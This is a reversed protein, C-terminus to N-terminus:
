FDFGDHGGEGGVAVGLYAKEADDFLEDRAHWGVADAVVSLAQRKAKQKMITKETAGIIGGEAKHKKQVDRLREKLARQRKKFEEEKAKKAALAKEKSDHMDVFHGPFAAKREKEMEAVMQRVEANVTAQKRARREEDKKKRQDEEVARARDAAIKKIKQNYANTMKPEAVNSALAREKAIREMEEIQARKDAQKKRDRAIRAARKEEYEKQRREIPLERNPLTKHTQNAEKVARLKEEWREQKLKMIEAYREPNVQQVKAAKKEKEALKRWTRQSATEKVVHGAQEHLAKHMAMRAPLQSHTQMKTARADVRQKREADERKAIDEWNETGYLKVNRAKFLLGREDEERKRLMEEREKEKEQMRERDKKAFSFERADLSKTVRDRKSREMQDLLDQKRAREEEEKMKKRRRVAEHVEMSRFPKVIESHRRAIRRQFEADTEGPRQTSKKPSTTSPKPKKPSSYSTDVELSEVEKVLVEELRRAKAQAEDRQKVLQEIVRVNREQDRRLLALKEALKGDIATADNNEQQMEKTNQVMKRAEELEEQLSLVTEELKEVKKSISGVQGHASKPRSSAWKREGGTPKASQPRSKVSKALDGFDEDWNDREPSQSGERWAQKKAEKSHKQRAKIDREMNKAQKKSAREKRDDTLKFKTVDEDDENKYYIVGTEDDVERGASAGVAAIRPHGDRPATRMSQLTAHTPQSM